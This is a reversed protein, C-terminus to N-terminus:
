IRWICMRNKQMAESSLAKCNKIGHVDNSKPFDKRATFTQCFTNANACYISIFNDHDDYDDDNNAFKIRHIHM